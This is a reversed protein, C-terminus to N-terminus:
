MKAIIAAIIADRNASIFAVDARDCYIDFFEDIDGDLLEAQEEEDCAFFERAEFSAWKEIKDVALGAIENVTM